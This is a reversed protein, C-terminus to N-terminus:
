NMREEWRWRLVLLLLFCLVLLAVGAHFLTASSAAFSRFVFSLYIICALREIQNIYIKEEGGHGAGLDKTEMRGESGLGLAYTTAVPPVTTYFFSLYSFISIYIRFIFPYISIPLSQERYSAQNQKGHRSSGKWGKGLYSSLWGLLFGGLCLVIGSMVYFM